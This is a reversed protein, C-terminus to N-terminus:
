GSLDYDGVGYANLDIIVKSLFQPSNPALPTLSLDDIETINDNSDVKTVRGSVKYKYFQHHTPTQNTSIKINSTPNVFRNDLDIEGQIPDGTGFNKSGQIGANKTRTQFKTTQNSSVM